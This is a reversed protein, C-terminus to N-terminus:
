PLSRERYVSLVACMQAAACIIIFSGLRLRDQGRHPCPAMSRPPQATPCCHRAAHLALPSCPPASRTPHQAGQYSNPELSDRRVLREAGAVLHDEHRPNPANDPCDTLRECRQEATCFGEQSRASLAGAKALSIIQKATCLRALDGGEGSANPQPKQRRSGRTLM